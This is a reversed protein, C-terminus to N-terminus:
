RREKIREIIKAPTNMEERELETPAIVVGFREEITVLFEIALLSDFLGEEFLDLDREEWVVEDGCLEEIIELIENELSDNTM